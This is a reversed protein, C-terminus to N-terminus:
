AGLALYEIKVIEISQMGKPSRFNVLDGAHAKILAAGLPSVWSIRKKDLDVEDVGVISYTVERDDEYRITVTAGFLVQDSQITTPDVIEANELRKALYRLRRDIERLRRKNYTYDANESRDGNSAAWNVIQAVEPRTKYRLEKLEIRMREACYVTMYNKTGPPLAPATPEGDDDQADDSERTFAKSMIM